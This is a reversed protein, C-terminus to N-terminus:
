ASRPQAASSTSPPGAAPAPGSKWPSNEPTRRPPREKGPDVPLLAGYRVFVPAQEPPRTLREWGGGPYVARTTYDIWDGAPLYVDQEGDAATVPAVLLDTGLLYQGDADRTARDGPCAAIM